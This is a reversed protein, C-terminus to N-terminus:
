KTERRPQVVPPRVEPRDRDTFFGEAWFFFSRQLKGGTGANRPVGDTLMSGSSFSRPWTEM